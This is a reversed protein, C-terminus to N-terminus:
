EVIYPITCNLNERIALNIFITLNLKQFNNDNMLIENAHLKTSLKASNTVIKRPNKTPM